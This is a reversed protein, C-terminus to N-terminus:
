SVSSSSTSRSIQMPTQSSVFAFLSVVAGVGYPIRKNRKGVSFHLHHDHCFDLCLIAYVLKPSRSCGFLACIYYLSFFHLIIIIIIIILFAIFLVAPM